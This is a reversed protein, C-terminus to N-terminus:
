AGPVAGAPRQTLKAGQQAQQARMAKIEEQSKGKKGMIENRPCASGSCMRVRPAFVGAGPMPPEPHPVYEPLHM